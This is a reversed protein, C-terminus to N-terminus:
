VLLGAYGHGAADGAATGGNEDFHWLAILGDENGNLQRHQLYNIEAVGLARNWLTIEDITGSFYDPLNYYKGYQLPQTGTPPGPSGGWTGSGVQIGDLYLKGGSADVTMAAHHWFGDAVSASSTAYIAQDGLAASYYSVLHGGQVILFWGNGSGDVYKNALGPMASSTAPLLLVSGVLAALQCRIAVTKQFSIM